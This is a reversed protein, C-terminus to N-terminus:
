LLLLLAAGLGLTVLGAKLWDIWEAPGSEPLVEPLVPQAEVVATTYAITQTPTTCTDSNVYEALRCVGNPSTDTSYCIHASNACDSNSVCSENCGVAPPPPQYVVPQCNSASQNSSLRCAGNSCVYNGSVTQCQADTTCASNCAYTEVAPQCSGSDRNSDLRCTNGHEASCIYSSNATQCQADTSCNANCSYTVVPPTASPSPSPSVSPSPSPSVSPSPTPIIEEELTLTSTCTFEADAGTTVLASNTFSEEDETSVVQVMFEVIVSSCANAPPTIGDSVVQPCELQGLEATVTRTTEDYVVSNSNFQHDVFELQAPLEDLITVVDSTTATPRVTIRYVFSDGVKVATNEAIITPEQSDDAIFANHTEKAIC